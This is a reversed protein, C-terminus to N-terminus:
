KQFVTLAVNFLIFGTKYFFHERCVLGAALMAALVLAAEGLYVDYELITYHPGVKFTDGLLNRAVLPLATANAWIIAIYVLILFWASLVGHDYGLEHKAYSYIGGADPHRNMMYHYNMGIVLMIVAGVAMGIATGLPGAIPLFTTGPM